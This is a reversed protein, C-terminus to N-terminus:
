YERHAAYGLSAGSHWSPLRELDEQGKEHSADLTKRISAGTLIHLEGKLIDRAPGEPHEETLARGKQGKLFQHLLLLALIVRAGEKPDESL